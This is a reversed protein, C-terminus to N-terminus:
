NMESFFETMNESKFNTIRLEPNKMKLTRTGYKALILDFVNRNIVKLVCSLKM